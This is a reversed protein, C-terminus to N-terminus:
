SGGGGGACVERIEPSEVAVVVRVVNLNTVQGRVLGVVVAFDIGYTECVDILGVVLGIAPVAGAHDAAATERYHQHAAAVCAPIVEDHERRIGHQSGLVIDARRPDVSTLHEKDPCSIGVAARLLLTLELERLHRHGAQVVVKGRFETMHFKRGRLDHCVISCLADGQGVVQPALVAGVGVVGIRGAGAADAGVAISHSVAGGHVSDILDIHLVGDARQGEVDAAVIGVGAPVAHRRLPGGVRPPVARLQHGALATERVGGVCVVVLVGEEAVGVLQLHHVALAAVLIQASGRQDVSLDDSGHRAAVLRPLHDEVGVVGRLELQAGEAGGCRGEIGAVLAAGGHAVAARRHGHRHEGQRLAGVGVVDDGVVVALGNAGLHLLVDGRGDDELVQGCADAAGVDGILRQRAIEGGRGRAVGEVGQGGVVEGIGGRHSGDVPAGVDIDAVGRLVERGLGQLEVAAAAVIHLVRVVAVIVVGDAGGGDARIRLLRGRRLVDPVEQAAVGVRHVDLVHGRLVIHLEAAAAQGEVAQRLVAEEDEHGAAGVGGRRQQLGCAAVHGGRRRARRQCERGPQAGHVVVDDVALVLHDDGGVAVARVQLQGHADLARQHALVVVPGERRQGGIGVAATRGIGGVGVGGVVHLGAGVFEAADARCQALAVLDIDGVVHGVLVHKGVAFVVAGLAVVRCQAGFIGRRRHVQQAEEVALGEVLLVAVVSQHGRRLLGDVGVVVAVGAQVDVALLLPLRLQLAGGGRAAAPGPEDLALRQVGIM